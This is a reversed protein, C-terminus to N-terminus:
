PANKKRPVSVGESKEAPGKRLMGFPVHRAPDFFNVPGDDFHGAPFNGLAGFEHVPDPRPHRFAGGKVMGPRGQFPGDETVTNHSLSLAIKKKFNFQQRSPAVLDARLKGPQIEVDLSIQFVARPPAFLAAAYPQV